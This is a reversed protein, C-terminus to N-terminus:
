FLRKTAWRLRSQTLTPIVRLSITLMCVKLYTQNYEGVQVQSSSLFGEVMMEDLLRDVTAQPLSKLVGYLADSNFGKEVLAKQKSGRLAYVLQSKTIGSNRKCMRLLSEFLRLANIADETHDMRTIPRTDRCNDCLQNCHAPNFKEGFHALVQQRRCRVDNMCYRAVTWLDDEQWRKEDDSKDEKRIMDIRTRVDNFSYYLICQAPNGDRGARGTEQYYAALSQPISYHMVFRVDAKDIGMGFAVTAVIVLVKGESWERQVRERDRHDMKAHYHKASIGHDERLVKAVDECSTRSLCYVIGTQGAYQQKIDQAIEELCKKSKKPRVEYYLNKRNFSLRFQACDRMDLRCLIDREVEANATATLASIPTKPYQKRIDALEPYSDRFRRGWDTICHAEDIVFRVLQGRNYLSELLKKTPPVRLQEPTLYVLRPKDQSWLRDRASMEQRERDSQEGGLKVVDVGIKLLADVQDRILSVLPGVVVTVGTTHLVAPIQFTLSKGSGTPFLVFVDRGDMAACIAELQKPRFSELRFVNKLVKM